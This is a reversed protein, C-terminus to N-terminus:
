KQKCAFSSSGAVPECDSSGTCDTAKSCIEECVLRGVANLACIAGDTCDGTSGSTNCQEGVPHGGGCAGAIAILFCGLLAISVRKM